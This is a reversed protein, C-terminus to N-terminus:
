ILEAKKLHAITIPGQAINLEDGDANHIPAPYRNQVQHTLTNYGYSSYPSSDVIDQKTPPRYTNGAVIFLGSNVTIPCSYSRFVPSNTAMELGEIVVSDYIGAMNIYGHGPKVIKVGTVRYEDVYVNSVYSTKIITTIVELEAGSGNVTGFLRTGFVIRATPPVKFRAYQISGYITVSTIRGWAYNWDSVGLSVFEYLYNSTYYINGRTTFDAKYLPDLITLQEANKSVTISPTCKFVTRKLPGLEDMTNTIEDSSIRELGAEIGTNPSGKIYLTKRVSTNYQSSYSSFWFRDMPIVELKFPMNNASLPPSRWKGEAQDFVCIVESPFDGATEIIDVGPICDQVVQRVPPYVAVIPPAESQMTLKRWYHKKDEFTIKISKDMGWISAGDTVTLSNPVSLNTALKSSSILDFTPGLYALAATTITPTIATGTTLSNVFDCAYAVGSIALRKTKADYSGTITGGITMTTNISITNKYYILSNSPPGSNYGQYIDYTGTVPVILEFKTQGQYTSVPFVFSSIQNNLTLAQGAFLSNVKAAIAASLATQNTLKPKYTRAIWGNYFTDFYAERLVEQGLTVGMVTYSAANPAGTIVQPQLPPIGNTVYGPSTYPWPFYSRESLDISKFLPTPLTVVLDHDNPRVTPKIVMPQPSAYINGFMNVLYKNLSEWSSAFWLLETDTRSLYPAKNLPESSVTSEPHWVLSNAFIQGQNRKDDQKPQTKNLMLRLYTNPQVKLKLADGSLAKARTTAIQYGHGKNILYYIQTHDIATIEEDPEGENEVQYLVANENAPATYVLMSGKGTNGFVIPTKAIAEAYTNAFQLNSGTKISYYIKGDELGEPLCSHINYHFRYGQLESIRRKQFDELPVEEINPFTWPQLNYYTSNGANWPPSIKLMQIQQTVLNKGYIFINKSVAEKQEGILTEFATLTPLLAGQYSGLHDYRLWARPPDLIIYLGNKVSGTQNRLFVYRGIMYAKSDSSLSKDWISTLFDASIPYDIIYEVSINDSHLEGSTPYAQIQTGDPVEGFERPQVIVTGTEPICNTSNLFCFNLYKDDDPTAISSKLPWAFPSQSPALIVETGDPYLHYERDFYVNYVINAGGGNVRYRRIPVTDALWPLPYHFDYQRLSNFSYNNIRTKNENSSGLWRKCNMTPYKWYNSESERVLGTSFIGNSNVGGGNSGFSYLIHNKTIGVPTWNAQGFKKNILDNCKEAGYYSTTSVSMGFTVPRNIWGTAPSYPNFVQETPFVSVPLSMTNAPTVVQPVIMLQCNNPLKAALEDPFTIGYMGFDSSSITGLLRDANYESIPVTVTPPTTKVGQVYELPANFYSDYYSNYWSPPFDETFKYQTKLYGELTNRYRDLGPNAVYSGSFFIWKNTMRDFRFISSGSQYTPVIQGHFGGMYLWAYGYGTDSNIYTYTFQWYSPNYYYTNTDAPLQFPLTIAVWTDTGDKSRRTTDRGFTVRDYWLFSQGSLTVIGMHKTTLPFVLEVAPLTFPLVVIAWAKINDWYMYTKGDFVFIDQETPNSPFMAVPDFAYYFRRFSPDYDSGYSGQNTGTQDVILSSRIENSEEDFTETSILCGTPNHAEVYGNNKNM